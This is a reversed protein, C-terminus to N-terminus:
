LKSGGQLKPNPGRYEKYIDDRWAILEDFEGVLAPDKWDSGMNPGLNSFGNPLPRAFAGCSCAVIDALTLSDGIMFKGGNQKRIQDLERLGQRMTELTKEDTWDPGSYKSRLNQSVFRFVFRIVSEPAYCLPPPVDEIDYNGSIASRGCSRFRGAECIQNTLEVVRNFKTLDEPVILKGGSYKAAWKGIDVSDTLTTGDDFVLVPVSVKSFPNYAGLIYRLWPEDVLPVYDVIQVNDLLGAIKLAFKARESWPSVPISILRLKKNNRPDNKDSM